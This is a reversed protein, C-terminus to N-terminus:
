AIPSVHHPHERHVDHTVVGLEPAPRNLRGPDALPRRIDELGSQWHERMADLGFEYDKSHGEFAKSQYILHVINYVRDCALDAIAQTEQDNKAAEPLKAMVRQLAQRMKQMELMHSTIARTRSSYQIDKQRSSVELLDYPLRGKASWLDVQFTLTDRRCSEPSLRTRCWAV